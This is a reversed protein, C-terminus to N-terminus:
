YDRTIRSPVLHPFSISSAYNSWNRVEEATFGDDQGWYTTVPVTVKELKYEPPEERGYVALNERPGFDFKSFKGSRINKAYHAVTKTSTGAPLVKAIEPLLAVNMQERDYGGFLLVANSCIIKSACVSRNRFTHFSATSFM